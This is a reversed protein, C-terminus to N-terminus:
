PFSGQQGAGSGPVALVAPARGQLRSGPREVPDWGARRM